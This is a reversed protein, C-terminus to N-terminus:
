QLSPCRGIKRDSQLGLRLVNIAANLDRDVYLGCFPCNHTRESLEKKPRTGSNNIM